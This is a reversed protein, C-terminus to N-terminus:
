GWADAADGSRLPRCRDSAVDHQCRALSPSRSRANWGDTPACSPTSERVQILHDTAATTTRTQKRSSLGVLVSSKSRRDTAGALRDRSTARVPHRKPLQGQLDQM